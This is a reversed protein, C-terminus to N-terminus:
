EPHYATIVTQKDPSYIAEVRGYITHEFYVYYRGQYAPASNTKLYGAQNMISEFRNAPLIKVRFPAVNRIVHKDLTM